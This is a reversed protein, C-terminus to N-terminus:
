NERATSSCSRPGFCLGYHRHISFQRQGYPTLIILLSL